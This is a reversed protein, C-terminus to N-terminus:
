LIIFFENALLLDCGVRLRQAVLQNSLNSHLDVAVGPICPKDGDLVGKAFKIASGIGQAIVIGFEALLGRLM